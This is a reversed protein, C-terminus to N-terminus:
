AEKKVEGDSELVYVDREWLLAAVASAFGGLSFWVAVKAFLVVLSGKRVAARHLYLAWLLLSGAGLYVDWHLFNVALPALDGPGVSAADVTPPSLPSWPQFVSGLTVSAAVYPKLWPFSDAAATLIGEPALALLLIPLQGAAGGLFVLDYVGRVRSLYASSPLTAGQPGAPPGSSVRGLASLAAHLLYHWMPFAQWFAIAAYHHKASVSAPPLYMAVTPLAIALLVTAPLVTMDWLDVLVSAKPSAKALPSTLLFLLVWLPMLVQWSVVQGLFLM